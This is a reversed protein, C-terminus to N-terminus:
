SSSSSCSSSSSSCSSSSSSSCSSSSSSSCSSSSSSCSSSSCSSSSNCSNSSCSSSSCSSASGCSSCSSGCGGGSDSRSKRKNHQLHLPAPSYLVQPPLGFLDAVRQRGMVGRLGYVAVADVRSRQHTRAYGLARKGTPTLMKKGRLLFALLWAVVTGALFVRDAAFTAVLFGVGVLILLVRLAVKGGSAKGWRRRIMARDTLSQRLSGMEQSHSAPGVVHGIPRGAGNLSNLIFSEIRTKAGHGNQHVATVLGERSIRVHGGDMLRALATEAARGPGGALFGIEEPRCGTGPTSSKAM